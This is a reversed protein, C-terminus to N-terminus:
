NPHYYFLVNPWRLIVCLMHSYSRAGGGVLNSLSRIVAADGRAQMNDVVATHGRKGLENMTRTETAGQGPERNTRRRTM